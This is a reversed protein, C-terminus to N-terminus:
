SDKRERAEVQAAVGAWHRARGPRDAARATEQLLALLGPHLTYEAAREGAALAAAAGDRARVRRIADPVREVHLRREALLREEIRDARESRGTRRAVDAVWLLSSPDGAAAQEAEDLLTTAEAPAGAEHLRLALLATMRLGTREHLRGADRWSRVAASAARLWAPRADRPFLRGLDAAGLGRARLQTTGYWPPLDDAAVQEPEMRCIANELCRVAKDTEGARAFLAAALRASQRRLVTPRAAARECLERCRELARDPGLVRKWTRIRLAADNDDRYRFPDLQPGPRTARLVKEVVRVLREGELVDCCDEVLAAPSTRSFFDNAADLRTVCWAFLRAARDPEGTRALVRALRRAQAVDDPNLTAALDALVARTRDGLADPAAELGKLLLAYEKKGARGARVQAVLEALAREDGLRARRAKAIGEFLSTAVDLDDPGLMRLMRQLEDEFGPRDAVAVLVPPAPEEGARRELEAFDPLGGRSRADGPSAAAERPWRERFIQRTLFRPDVRRREVGLKRWHRRFVLRAGSADGDELKRKVVAISAPPVKEPGGDRSGTGAEEGRGRPEDKEKELAAVKLPHRLARWLGQLRKRYLDNEPEDEVLAAYIAAAEVPRGAARLRRALRDRLNADEPHREVAARLAALYAGADARSRLLSLRRKTLAVSAGDEREKRDILRLLAPRGQEGLLPLLQTVARNAWAEVDPRDLFLGYARAGVERAREEEGATLLAGAYTAAYLLDNRASEYLERALELALQPHRRNHLLAYQIFYGNRRPDIKGKHAAFKDKLFATADPGLEATAGRNGDVVQLVFMVRREEPVKTWLERLVSARDAADAADVIPGPQYILSRPGDEILTRLQDPEMLRVGLTRQLRGILRLLSSARDQNALVTAVLSRGLSRKHEDGLVPWCQDLIRRVEGELWTNKKHRLTAKVLHRAFTLASDADELYVAAAVLRPVSALDEPRVARLRVRHLLRRAEDARGALVLPVFLRAAEEPTVRAPLRAGAEAGTLFRAKAREEEPRDSAAVLTRAGAVRGRDMRARVLEPLLSADDPFAALLERDLAGALGPRDYAFAVRRFFRARHYLRPYRRLTHEEGDEPRERRARARDADLRRKTRELLRDFAPGPELTTLLGRLVRGYYQDFQEVNGAGFPRFPRRHKEPDEEETTAFPRRALMLRVARAFLNAAVDDRGLTEHLEAVKAILAVDGSQGLLLRGYVRLAQAPYGAREFAGAVQRQFAPYDPVDRALSFTRAAAAVQGAELFARGLTLYVDPPVADGLALLRRGYRLQRGRAAPPTSPAGTRVVVFGSGGLRRLGALDLMERLISARRGGAIPLSNGLARLMTEKDNLEESLDSLLQYLYTKDHRGALRELTIRRAWLLKPRPADLNLLGDIAVTFLDDREATEALHQLLGVARARQGQEAMLEALLLYSEIRDPWRALGRRYAGMAEEYLGALALVGAEFEAADSGGQTEKLKELTRRAEAPRARELNSMALQRLYDARGGPDVRMLERVTREYNWYDASALFISAKEKLGSVRDGGSRRVYEEVIEAASVPDGAKTYLRVLLGAERDGAKGAAMKEELEIAVDALRGLRAAVALLRDEVYSRRAPSEVKRWLARWLELAREEDGTASRLVALRMDLDEESRKPGRAARLKALVDAAKRKRGIREYGDALAMRAAHGDPAAADLEDLAAEAQAMRGRDRHLGALFLLAEYRVKGETGSARAFEVALDDLGLDMLVNAAALLRRPEKTRALVDRWVAVAEERRAHELLRRTLGEPWELRRPEAAILERYTREMLADRGAERCMELLERRMEVTFGGEAGSRFLEMAEDVRGLERLLDIWVARAEDPLDEERAFRDALAGLDGADRHAEVLLALAYRRDRGLRAASLARWAVEKAAGPDEAALRWQAVRAEDRFRAAGEGAPRFLDAAANERGRLALVVAARNRLDPAVEEGSAFAVLPPEADDGDGAERLMALRLRLRGARAADEPALALAKRYAERAEDRRGLADLLRASERWAFASAARPQDGARLAAFGEQAQELDGRAARTRAALWRAARASDGDGEAMGDLHALLPDLSEHALVVSRHLPRLDLAPDDARRLAEAVDRRLAPALEGAAAPAVLFLLLPLFALRVTM